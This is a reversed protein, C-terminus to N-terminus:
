GLWENCYKGHSIHTSLAAIPCTRRIASRNEGPMMESINWIWENM